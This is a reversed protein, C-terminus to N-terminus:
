RNCGTRPVISESLKLSFSQLPGLLYDPFYFMFEIALSQLLETHKAKLFIVVPSLIATNKLYKFIYKVCFFALAQELAYPAFYHM